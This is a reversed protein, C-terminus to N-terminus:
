ENAKTISGLEPFENKFKRAIWGAVYKFGDEKAINTQHNVTRHEQVLSASTSTPSHFIEEINQVEPVRIYDTNDQSFQQPDDISM